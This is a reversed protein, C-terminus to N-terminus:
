RKVVKGVVWEEKYRRGTEAVPIEVKVGVDKVRGEGDVRVGGVGAKLGVVAVGLAVCSALAGQVAKGWNKEVGGARASGAGRKKFKAFADKARAVSREIDRWLASTGNRVDEVFAPSPATYAGYPQMDNEDRYRKFLESIAPQFPKMRLEFRLQESGYPRNPHPLLNLYLLVIYFRSLAHALAAIGEVEHLQSAIYMADQRIEEVVATEGAAEHLAIRSAFHASIDALVDRRRTALESLLAYMSALEDPLYIDQEFGLLVIKEAMFLKKQYVWTGLPSGIVQDQIGMDRTIDELDSDLLRADAQLQSWGIIVHTLMRRLRCRNQGLATWYDLYSQGVREIFEDIVYAIQLRPPKPLSPNLPPSLTWNTPDLIPSCPLLVTKLDLLPLSTTTNLTDPHFLITSLYSRSYALPTPSRSAFAWLFSEYELPDPPLSTFRTAEECDHCLQQLKAFADKFELEVIPRPPVTSALRRQIKTSFSGPVGKGLQQTVNISPLSSLIPSWYRDLHELSCDLDLATLFDKRFGLRTIIAKRFSDDIEGEEEMLEVAADLERLFVDMPTQFFLVRNYTHTCFDEEEYYDRGTVKAIVFDCCKVLAICYARLVELLPAPRSKGPLEGRYFQAQELTKPEPWLLKDIYVSTFLTQSLPYGTHWAMEHSLLQDMIGIVEEPLLPALTDYEDELTEGPQLFGSDMKPDMVEIAGISEFLTFYEDKVLQGVELAKCARTFKETVDYVKPESRPQQMAQRLPLSGPAHANGAHRSGGDKSSGAGDYSLVTDQDPQPAADHHQRLPEDAM